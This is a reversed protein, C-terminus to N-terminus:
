WATRARVDPRLPVQRRSSSGPTPTSATSSSARRRPGPHRDQGADLRRARRRRTRSPWASASRRRRAPGRGAQPFYWPRKWQGVDEFVAGHAVHWAHMPTHARPIPWNASMAARRARRLDGAHLAPPLHHHRGAAIPQGAGAGPDGPRQHQSTKGQDTGMGPTTYRKVHEVSSTAKAPASRSTPPPSTTRSTSSTSPRATASWIPRPCSGSRRPDAPQPETQEVSRSPPFKATAM